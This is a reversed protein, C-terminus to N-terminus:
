RKPLFNPVNLVRTFFINLLFSVDRKKKCGGSVNNVGKGDFHGCNWRWFSIKYKIVFFLSYDLSFSSSFRSLSLFLFSSRNTSDHMTELPQFRYCTTGPAVVQVGEGKKAPTEGVVGLCKNIEM